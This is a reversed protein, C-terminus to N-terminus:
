WDSVMLLHPLQLALSIGVTSCIGHAAQFSSFRDGHLCPSGEDKPSFVSLGLAELAKHLVQQRRPQTYTIEDKELNVTGM